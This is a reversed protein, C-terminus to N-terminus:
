RASLPGRVQLSFRARDLAFQARCAAREKAEKAAAKAAAKAKAGGKGKEAAGSSSSGSSSGGGGTLCRQLAALVPSGRLQAAGEASWAAGDELGGETAGEAAGEADPDPLGFLVCFRYLAGPLAGDEDDELVDRVVRFCGGGGGEAGEGEGEGEEEEDHNDDCGWAEELAARLLPPCCAEELLEEYPAGGTFLHLMCLGLQFTDIAYGQTAGSGLLLLDIPTNELTTFMAVTVPRGATASALDATGYDAMKVLPAASRDAYRLAFEHAGFGFVM